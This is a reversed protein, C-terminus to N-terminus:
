LLMVHEVDKKHLSPKQMMQYTCTQLLLHWKYTFLRLEKLHLYNDFVLSVSTRVPKPLFASRSCKPQFWKNSSALPWVPSLHM